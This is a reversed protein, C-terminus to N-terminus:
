PKTRAPCRTVIVIVCMMVASVMSERASPHSSPHARMPKSATNLIRPGCNGTSQAAFGAFFVLLRCIIVPYHLAPKEFLEAARFHRNIFAHGTFDAQPSSGAQRRALISAAHADSASSTAALM